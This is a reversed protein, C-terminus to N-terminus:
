LDSCRRAPFGASCVAWPRSGPSPPSLSVALGRSPSLTHGEVLASSSWPRRVRQGGGPCLGPCCSMPGQPEDQSQWKLCVHSPRTRVHRCVGYGEEQPDLKRSCSIRDPARFVSPLVPVEACACPRHGSSCRHTVPGRRHKIRHILRIPGQDFTGRAVDTLTNGM